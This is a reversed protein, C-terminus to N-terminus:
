SAQNFWNQDKIWLVVIKIYKKDLLTSINRNCNGSWREGCCRNNWSINNKKCFIDEYIIIM